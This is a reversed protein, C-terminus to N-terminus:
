RRTKNCIGLAAAEWSTGPRDRTVQAIRHALKEATPADPCVHNALYKRAFAHMQRAANAAQGDGSSTAEGCGAALGLIAAITVVLLPRGM